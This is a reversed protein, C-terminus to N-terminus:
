ESNQLPAAEAAGHLDKIKKDDRASMLRRPIQKESNKLV